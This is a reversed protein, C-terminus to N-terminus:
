QLYKKKHFIHEFETKYDESFFINHLDLQQFEKKVGWYFILASSSKPQTLLKKPVFKVDLLYKYTNVMDMNSIIKDFSLSEGDVRIGTAGSKGVTIQSVKKNFQFDVGLDMALDYLKQTIDHMGGAPFFAGLNFELHPIINFTAPIKYPNSGNYTAYRNFLQVIKKSQFQQQNAANMNRFFDLKYFNLYAKLAKINIFTKWSHLSKKMFLDALLDYLLQSKKLSSIINTKAEGTKLFVEEAFKEKDSHGTIVTGDEYFYKCTVALKQYQFWENPDKGALIFLEDVLEPLTFLSPGADFRFDMLRLESLKGGPYPNSEFITVKYGKVALRISTALGAVGAGVIAIESTPKNKM